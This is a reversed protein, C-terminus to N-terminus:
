CDDIGECCILTLRWEGGFHRLDGLLGNHVLSDPREFDLNVDVPWLVLLAESDQEVEM